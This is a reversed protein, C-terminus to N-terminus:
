LKEEQHYSRDGCFQIVTGNCKNDPTWVCDPSTEKDHHQKHFTSKHHDKTEEKECLLKEYPERLMPVTTRLKHNM